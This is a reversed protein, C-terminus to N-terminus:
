ITMELANSNVLVMPNVNRTRVLWVLWGKAELGCLLLGWWGRAGGGYKGVQAALLDEV